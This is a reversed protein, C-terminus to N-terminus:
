DLFTALKGSWESFRLKSLSKNEIQGIREKTLRFHRSITSLSPEAHFGIGFRMRLIKNERDTLSNLALMVVNKLNSEAVLEFVSLASDDIITDILCLSEGDMTQTELSIQEKSVNSVMQVTEIPMKMQNAIEEQTPERGMDHAMKQITSVLRRNADFINSPIRIIRSKNVISRKISAEILITAYTSLKCNMRWDFDTVANILGINGEQILDLFSLGNNNVYKKAISVVLKLNAEIMEKKAQDKKREGNMIAKYTKKLEDVAQGTEQEMFRLSEQARYIAQSHQTHFQRWRLEPHNALQDVWGTKGKNSSYEELFDIRQIGSLNALKLLEAEYARIRDVHNKLTKVIRDTQKKSFNISYLLDTITQKQGQYKLKLRKIKIDNKEANIQERTEKLRDNKESIRDNLLVIEQFTVPSNCIATLIEKNGAEIRKAIVIEDEQTLLKVAGIGRLYIQILSDTNDTETNKIDTHVCEHNDCDDIDDILKLYDDM